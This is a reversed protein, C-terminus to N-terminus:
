PRRGNTIGMMYTKSWCSEQSSLCRTAVKVSFDTTAGGDYVYAVVRSHPLTVSDVVKSDIFPGGAVMSGVLLMSFLAAGIFFPAGAIAKLWWRRPLCVGAVGFCVFTGWISALAFIHNLALNWLRLPLL